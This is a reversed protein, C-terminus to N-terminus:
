FAVGGPFDEFVEGVGDLGSRAPDPGQVPRREGPATWHIFQRGAGVLILMGAAAVAHGLLLMGESVEWHGLGTMDALGCGALGLFPTSM